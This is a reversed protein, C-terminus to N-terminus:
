SFISFISKSQESTDDIFTKTEIVMLESRNLPNSMAVLNGKQTRREKIM